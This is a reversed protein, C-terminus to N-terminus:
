GEEMGIVEFPQAQRGSRHDLDAGPVTADDREDLRVGAEPRAHHGQGVTEASTETFAVLSAAGAFGYATGAPAVYVLM